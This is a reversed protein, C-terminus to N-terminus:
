KFLEEYSVNFLHKLRILNDISPKRRGTEWYSIAQKTVYLKNALMDQTMLKELRIRRINECLCGGKIDQLAEDSILHFLLLRRSIMDSKRMNM